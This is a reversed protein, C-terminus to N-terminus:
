TKTEQVKKDVVEAWTVNNKPDRSNKSNRLIGTGGM